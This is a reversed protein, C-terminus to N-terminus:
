ICRESKLGAEFHGPFKELMDCVARTASQGLGCHSAKLIGALHGIESIDERAGRGGAIRELKDALIGTGVRCPTCFGCSEHAFFRSFNLAAEMMNRSHDFIMIAGSTPLDEF